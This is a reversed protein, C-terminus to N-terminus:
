KLIRHLPDFILAHHTILLNARYRATEKLVHNTPDLAIAIKTIKEARHLVLGIRGRDFDEALEPPAISELIPIIENLHM